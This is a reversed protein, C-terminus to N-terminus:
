RDPNAALVFQLHWTGMAGSEVVHLGAESVLAVLDRADVQGHRHLHALLGRGKGVRGFDVTLLRGGPRLVRRMERVGQPRAKGPLHHLMVTSLVADFRADPFPLSEAIGTGFVVDVAARAAKRTARAIMEPSADIGHVTGASGVRRQAAIALTGTGCGVDLVTEGPQLHALDLLRERFVRERGLTLLWLLLDYRAAWHVVMGTTGPEPKAGTSKTM